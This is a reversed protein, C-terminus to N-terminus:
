AGHPFCHDHFGENMRSRPQLAASMRGVGDGRGAGKRHAPGTAQLLEADKKAREYAESADKVLQVAALKQEELDHKRRPNTDM